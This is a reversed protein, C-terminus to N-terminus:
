GDGNTEPLPAITNADKVGGLPTSIGGTVERMAPVIVEVMTERPLQTRLREVLTGFIAVIDKITVHADVKLEHELIKQARNARIDLQKFLDALNGDHEKGGEVFSKLAYFAPAVAAANGSSMARELSSVKEKLKKRWDPTDGSEVRQWLRALLADMAAVEHRTDMLDPDGMAENALEMLNGMYRRYARGQRRKPITGPEHSGAKGGHQYCAGSYSPHSLMPPGICAEDKIAPRRRRRGCVKRRKSHGVTDGNPLTAYKRGLDDEKWDLEDIRYRRTSRAIDKGSRNHMGYGRDKTPDINLKPRGRGRKKKPM